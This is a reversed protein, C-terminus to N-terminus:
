KCEREFEPTYGTSASDASQFYGPLNLKRCLALLKNYEYSTVRRDPAGGSAFEPTYQRMLSVAVRGGWRDAIQRLVKESDSIHSPLVLHRIIVGRRILGDQMATEGAADVMRDIAAAAVANYDPASSYKESLAGDYYKLDPLFVDVLGALADITEAREYASTNYVVPLGGGAKKYISIGDAATPLFHAATILNINHAGAAELGHMIGALSQGDHLEGGGSRSISKNQCYSCRLNCGSFFIAGSGRTGSICPEEWMHLMVKAVAARDGCGCYGASVSRDVGCGRPCINCARYM